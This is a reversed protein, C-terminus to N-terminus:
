WPVAAGFTREVVCLWAPYQLTRLECRKQKDGQCRLNCSPIFMQKAGRHFAGAINLQCLCNTWLACRSILNWFDLVSVSLDYKSNLREKSAGSSQHRCDSWMLRNLQVPPAGRQEHWRLRFTKQLLFYTRCLKTIQNTQPPELHHNEIFDPILTIADASFFCSYM